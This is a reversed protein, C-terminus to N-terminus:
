VATSGGQAAWGGGGQRSPREAGRAARGVGFEGGGGPLRLGWMHRSLGTGQRGGGHRGEGWLVWM